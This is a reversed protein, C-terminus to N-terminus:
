ARELIHRVLNTTPGQLVIVAIFVVFLAASAALYRRLGARLETRERELWGRMVTGLVPLGTAEALSQSSSFVPKIMHILYAVAGGAGIGLLFVAALFLPRNPFIPRFSASPPDVINFKVSGTQEADGSLRARELRELLANYQTRTVDYDRTLKAYEAEVGPVTDIVKRLQAENNRRDAIQTRLGAIEVEVQNLQLQINQRVPNAQARTTAAVGADGRRLAALEDKQREQLQELTQRAAIVDPHKETFRLLLDDLRAQTEAIRSATDQSAGPMNGTGPTGEGGPVFPAEGRLQRQLEDRRSTAVVLQAQLGEAAQIQGTLRQFYDGQDGPVLGVNKKKFEALLAEADALRKGYEALQERLFREATATGTRDSKMSGEVFSNLLVDVVKIATDRNGDRITIRYLTNPIRPDRTVPPELAIEIRDSLSRLVGERQAPPMATLDIGVQEAVYELNTRGLLTQRILNLQSEFDQRIVQGELVNTLATRTDVIVRARAEYTDPIVFVVLWGLLCVAWATVLGYRRFRWAGRLETIVKDINEKM